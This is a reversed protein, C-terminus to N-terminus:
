GLRWSNSGHMCHNNSRPWLPRELRLCLQMCVHIHSMKHMRFVPHGSGRADDVAGHLRMATHWRKCIAWAPWLFAAASRKRVSCCEAVTQPSHGGKTWGWWGGRARKVVAAAPANGNGDAKSTLSNSGIIVTRPGWLWRMDEAALAESQLMLSRLCRLRKLYKGAGCCSRPVWLQPFRARILSRSGNSCKWPWSCVHGLSNGRGRACM